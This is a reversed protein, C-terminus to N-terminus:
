ATPQAGEEGDGRVRGLVARLRPERLEQHEAGAASPHRGPQPLDIALGLNVHNPVVMTPKGDVVDYGNNMAPNTKLAQVMAYGILHTYSVKGGRARRLHNNIVVAPRDAAQGAALPRQDRDARDALHGHEERDPGACRAAGDPDAAELDVSPRSSPNPPDAPVGGRNGPATPRSERSEMPREVQATRNSGGAQRQGSSQAPAQAPAPAPAAKTVPRDATKGGNSGGAAPRRESPEPSEPRAPASRPTAPAAPAAQAPAQASGNGGIKHTRFYEAWRADVSTPDAVYQEYMEEILWDNAGFQSALDEAQTEATETSQDPVIAM